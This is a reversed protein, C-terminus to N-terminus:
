GHAFWPGGLSELVEGSDVNLFKEGSALLHGLPGPDSWLVTRKQHRLAHGFMCYYGPTALYKQRIATDAAAKTWRTADADVSLM